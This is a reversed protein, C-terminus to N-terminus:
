VDGPPTAIRRALKIFPREVIRARVMLKEYQLERMAYVEVWFDDKIKSGFPRKLVALALNRKATPSWAGATIIGADTKKSHYVLAQEAPINGDIELGVLIHSSSGTDREAKLACRGNFPGKDFDVMWQIGAEFPSRVRDARVAQESAIFDANTAIFGAELRAIDLAASGIPRIGRARGAKWLQDWLPLAGKPTTFLEYGLDGTFGTRSIVTDPGNRLGKFTAIQFPRLNEVGKFGAQKLTWCSTPGQLALGAYEETEETIKVNFGIASDLLWPLHREQCCLRFVSKSFRFLTGDDLLKGDDDCWATYQVRNSALKTVNRLTLRNLYSEADRGEIRYKVMPTIDFLSSSNRIATYELEEDEVVHAAAYGAWPAWDDTTMHEAIRKHFPTHLLPQRYHLKDWNQRRTSRAPSAPM